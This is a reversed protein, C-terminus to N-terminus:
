VYSTAATNHPKKKESRLHCHLTGKKGGHSCYGLYANANYRGNYQGAFPKWEPRAELDARIAFWQAHLKRCLPCYPCKEGAFCEWPKQCITFHQPSPSNSTTCSTLNTLIHVGLFIFAWRVVNKIISVNSLRCDECNNTGDRCSGKGFGGADRPNDVM